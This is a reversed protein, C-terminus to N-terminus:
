TVKPANKHISMVACQEKGQYVMNMTASDNEKFRNWKIQFSTLPHENRHTQGLSVTTYHVVLADNGHKKSSAVIGQITFNKSLKQEKSM